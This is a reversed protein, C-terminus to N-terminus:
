FVSCFGLGDFSKVAETEDLGLGNGSGAQASTPKSSSAKIANSSAPKSSSMKAGGGARGGGGGGSKGMAKRIKTILVWFGSLWALCFFLV